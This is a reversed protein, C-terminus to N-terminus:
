WNNLMLMSCHRILLIPSSKWFTLPKAIGGQNGQHASDIILNDSGKKLIPRGSNLNTEQQAHHRRVCSDNLDEAPIHDSSDIM